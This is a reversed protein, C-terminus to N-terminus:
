GPGFSQYSGIYANEPYGYGEWYGLVAAHGLSIGTLWKVSKYGYMGPVVLRVPAGQMRPLPQGDIEWAVLPRYRAVQGASLGDWYVRDGSRFTVWPQRAPQWGLGLLMDQLDTGRFRVGDVAWGTVCTFDIRRTETPLATLAAFDLIKLGGPVGEVSLRYDQRSIAPFGGTVTYPVFGPVTGAGASLLGSPRGGLAAGFGLRLMGPLYYAAPLALAGGVGWRLLARRGLGPKAAGAARRRRLLGKPTEETLHVILWIVLGAAALAHVWTAIAPIAGRGLLLGLGSLVLLVVLAFAIRHTTGAGKPPWPFLRLAALALGLGYLLGGYTHFAQVFPMAPGLASRLPAAFIGLGTLSFAIVLAAHRWHRAFFSRGL